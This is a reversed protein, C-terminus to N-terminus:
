TDNSLINTCGIQDLSHFTFSFQM